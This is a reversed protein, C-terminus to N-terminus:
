HKIERVLRATGSAVGTHEGLQTTWWNLTVEDQELLNLEAEGRAGESSTWHLKALNGTPAEGFLRFRVESSIAQDPIRYRGWYTGTLTGDDESLEMEVYTAVYQSKEARPPSDSSYLWSGAFGPTSPTETKLFDGETRAPSTPIAVELQAPPAGPATALSHLEKRHELAPLERVIGAEPPPPQTRPRRTAPAVPPRSPPATSEVAVSPKTVLVTPADGLTGYWTALGGLTVGIVLWFWHRFAFQVWPSEEGRFGTWRFPSRPTRPLLSEDYASRSVPDTLIELIENLRRMQREAALRLREDSQIDPHLLRALTKHAQRIEDVPADAAVDLEEYYTM